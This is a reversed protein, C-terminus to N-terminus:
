KDNQYEKMDMKSIRCMHLRDTLQTILSKPSHNPPNLVFPVRAIRTGKVDKDFAM